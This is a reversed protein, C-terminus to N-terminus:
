GGAIECLHVERELMRVVEDFVMDPSLEVMCRHHGLPCTRQACRICDLDLQVNAGRITPNEIWVPSTPGLLTIVPTGLAAAIHRPGSDTSVALSARRLCAKTLGLCVDQDALSFVRDRGALRVIEGAIEREQPGCLVLADHELEDVIRQALRAFHTAPWLKAAGYAGSSNLAIVRGDDRLGLKRWVAAASQEEAETVALKLQRSIDGCGAASALALYADVMPGPVIRGRDRPVHVKHTLFASRGDRAYGIRQKAGGLWALVATHFSNTLLIITDLRERRIRRALALRGLQSHKSKPDFHWLDDFFDTGALLEALHPRLIGVIRSPPGFQRRVARLAPTAMALDGVWNPLFIGIKM